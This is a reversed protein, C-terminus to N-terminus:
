SSPDRWEEFGLRLAKSLDEGPIQFRYIMGTPAGCKQIILFGSTMHRAELVRIGAKELIEQVEVLSKTPPINECQKTGDHQYIYVRQSEPFVKEQMKEEVAYKRDTVLAVPISPDSRHMEQKCPGTSCSVFSFILLFVNIRTNIFFNELKEEKDIKPLRLPM